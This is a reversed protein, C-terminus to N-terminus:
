LEGQFARHQLSAFLTDLELLMARHSSKLREVANIRNSFKSQLTLPPAPITIKEFSSKKLIPLTTSAGQGAITSKFFALVNIGYNDDIESGWEVANIQQNFASLHKAKAMKGITAGICCVLASGSRVTEAAAAGLDTVTRKVTENSGLDGPTVFPITGGFMGGMASPPTGGTKVKGLAKLTKCPWNMPNAIPDGFMAIFISQTLSDLQALAERRKVRLADAQDLIAAIRRQEPLPPLSIDLRAVDKPYLHIGNVVNRIASRTSKSTVWHHVFNADLKNNDPRIFLWEGTALAGFVPPEARYTKSGVYDANHAANLILTDGEQVKKTSYKDALSLDVFSEHKGRFRGLESVDRIKLVPYGENRQEAKSPTKGNFVDAVDGLPVSVWGSM